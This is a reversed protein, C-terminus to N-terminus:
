DAIETDLIDLKPFSPDGDVTDDDPEREVRPYGPDGQVTDGM